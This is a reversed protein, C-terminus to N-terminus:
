YFDHNSLNDVLSETFCVIFFDIHSMTFLSGFLSQMQHPYSFNIVGVLRKLNNIKIERKKTMMMMVTSM